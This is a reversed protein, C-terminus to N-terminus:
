HQDVSGLETRIYHLSKLIESLNKSTPYSLGIESMTNECVRVSIEVYSASDMAYTNIESGDLTTVKWNRIHTGLCHNPFGPSGPKLKFHSDIM